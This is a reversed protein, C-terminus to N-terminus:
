LVMSNRSFLASPIPDYMSSHHQVCCALIKLNEINQESIPYAALRKEQVQIASTDLVTARLSELGCVMRSNTQKTINASVNSYNYSRVATLAHSGGSKVYSTMWFGDPAQMPGYCSSM